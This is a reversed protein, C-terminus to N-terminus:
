LPDAISKRSDGKFRPAALSDRVFQPVLQTSETAGISLEVEESDSDNVLIAEGASAASSTVVQLASPSDSAGIALGREGGGASAASSTVVQLASPFAVAVM